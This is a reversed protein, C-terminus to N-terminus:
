FHSLFLLLILSPDYTLSNISPSHYKEKILVSVFSLSDKVPGYLNPFPLSCLLIEPTGLFPLFPRNIPLFSFPSLFLSDFKLSPFSFPDNYYYKAVIVNNPYEKSYNYLSLSGNLKGDKFNSESKKDGNEKRGIFLGNRGNKPVGSIKSQESGNGLRYPGTLSEREKTETNIFSFYWEGEMLENVYSGEKIKNSNKDWKQGNEYWRTTSKTSDRTGDDNYYYEWEIIGDEFWAGHKGIQFGDKYTAEWEKQGNDYWATGL